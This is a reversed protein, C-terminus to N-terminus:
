AELRVKGNFAGSRHIDRIWAIYIWLKTSLIMHVAEMEFTVVWLKDTEAM